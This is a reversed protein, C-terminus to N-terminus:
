AEPTLSRATNRVDNGGRNLRSGPAEESLIRRAHTTGAVSRCRIQLSCMVSFFLCCIWFFLCCILVLLDGTQFRTVATWGAARAPDGLPLPTGGRSTNADHLALWSERHCPYACCGDASRLRRLRCLRMP